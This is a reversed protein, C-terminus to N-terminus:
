GSVIGQLAAGFAKIAKNQNAKMMARAFDKFSDSDVQVSVDTTGGGKSAIKFKIRIANPSSPVLSVDWGTGSWARATEGGRLVEIAMDAERLTLHPLRGVIDLAQTAFYM